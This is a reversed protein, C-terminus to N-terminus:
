PRCRIRGPGNAVPRQRWACFGTRSVALLRCMSAVPFRAKETAFAFRVREEPRLLGRKKLIEGEM